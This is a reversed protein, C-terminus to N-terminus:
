TFTLFWKGAEISIQDGVEFSCHKEFIEICEIIASQQEEVFSVIEEPAGVEELFKICQIYQFEEKTEM